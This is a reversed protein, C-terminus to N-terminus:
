VPTVKLDWFCFLFKKLNYFGKHIRFSYSYCHITEIKKTKVQYRPITKHVALHNEWVGEPNELVMQGNMFCYGSILDRRIFYFSNM